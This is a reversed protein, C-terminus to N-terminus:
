TEDGNQVWIDDVAASTREAEIQSWRRNQMLSLCVEEVEHQWWGAAKAKEVLGALAENFHEELADELDILRDPSGPRPPRIQSM